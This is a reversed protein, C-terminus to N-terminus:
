VEEIEFAIDLKIGECLGDTEITANDDAYWVDVLETSTGLVEPLGDCVTDLLTISVDDLKAV